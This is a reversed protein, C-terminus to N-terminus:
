PIDAKGIACLITRICSEDLQGKLLLKSRALCSRGDGRSGASGGNRAGPVTDLM